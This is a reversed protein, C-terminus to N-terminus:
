TMPLFSHTTDIVIVFLSLSPSFCSLVAVNSAERKENDNDNDNDVHPTVV